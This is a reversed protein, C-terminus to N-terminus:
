AHQAKERCSRFYRSLADSTSVRPTWGLLAKAKENSYRTRKWFAHWARRNYAPPLQGESWDSYKEWLCCLAYSM